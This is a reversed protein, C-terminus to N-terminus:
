TNKLKKQVTQTLEPNLDISEGNSIAALYEDSRKLYSAIYAFSFLSLNVLSMAFLSLGTIPDKFGVLFAICSNVFMALIMTLLTIHLGYAKELWAEITHRKFYEKTMSIKKHTPKEQEISQM